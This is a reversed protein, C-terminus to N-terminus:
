NHNKMEYSYIENTQGNALKIIWDDPSTLPANSDLLAINSM